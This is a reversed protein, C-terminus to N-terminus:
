ESIYQLGSVLNRAKIEDASIEGSGIAEALQLLKAAQAVSGQAQMGSVVNEAEIHKAHIGGIQNKEM